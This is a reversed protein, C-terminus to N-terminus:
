VIAKAFPAIAINKHLQETSIKGKFNYKYFAYAALISVIAVLITEVVAVICSNLFYTGLDANSLVTGFNELTPNEPIITPPYKIIENAPKFAGVIMWFFPFLMVLSALILVIYKFSPLIFYYIKKIKNM